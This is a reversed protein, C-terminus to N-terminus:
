NDVAEIILPNKTSLRLKVSDGQILKQKKNDIDQMFYKNNFKYRVSAYRNYYFDFEPFENKKVFEVKGIVTQSNNALQHAYYIGQLKGIAIGSLGLTALIAVPILHKIWNMSSTDIWLRKLANLTRWGIVFLAIPSAVNVKHYQQFIGGYICLIIIICNICTWKTRNKSPATLNIQAKM